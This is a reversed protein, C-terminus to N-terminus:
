IRRWQAIFYPYFFPSPIRDYLQELGFMFTKIRPKISKPVRFILSNYILFYAPGGGYACRMPTFWQAAAKALETHDLAHETDADFYRDLRYWLKRAGELFYRSNPEYMLLVGGPRVMSAVTKLTGEIDAVCHHLGGIIMAADVRLDLPEGRTLDVCFSEGGVLEKYRRCAHASIDFGVVEAGPFRELLALSNFGSGSALDAVVKGNLDVGRFLEDYIFKARFELSTEDFYHAEYDDHISEYLEKQATSLPKTSKM